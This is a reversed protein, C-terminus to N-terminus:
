LSGGSTGFGGFSSDGNLRGSQAERNLRGIYAKNTANWLSIYKEMCSKLCAQDKSSLSSDPPTPVCKEFCNMNLKEMLARANNLAAEAQVQQMVAAKMDASTANRSASPADSSSFPNSLAM